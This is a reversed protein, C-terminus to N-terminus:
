DVTLLRVHSNKTHARGTEPLFVVAQLGDEFYMLLRCLIHVASSGTSIVLFPSRWTLFFCPEPAPNRWMMCLSRASGSTILPDTIIKNPTVLLGNEIPM